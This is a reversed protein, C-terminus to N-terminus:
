KTKLTTVKQSLHLYYTNDNFYTNKYIKTKVLPCFLQGHYIVGETTSKGMANAPSPYYRFNYLIYM